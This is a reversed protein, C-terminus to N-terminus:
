KLNNLKDELWKMYEPDPVEIELAKIEEDTASGWEIEIWTIGRDDEDWSECIGISRPIPNLGTERKYQLQLENM